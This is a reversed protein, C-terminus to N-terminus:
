VSGPAQKLNERHGNGGWVVEGSCSFFIIQLELPVPVEVLSPLIQQKPPCDKDREMLKQDPTICINKEEESTGLPCNTFCVNTTAERGLGKFIVWFAM